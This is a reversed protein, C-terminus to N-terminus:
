EFYTRVKEESGFDDVFMGSHQLAEEPEFVLVLCKLFGVDFFQICISILPTVTELLDERGSGIDSSIDIIDALSLSMSAVIDIYVEVFVFQM